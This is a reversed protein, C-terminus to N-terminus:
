GNKKEQKLEKKDPIYEVYGLGFLHEILEGHGIFQKNKNGIVLKGRSKTSFDCLAKVTIMEDTM